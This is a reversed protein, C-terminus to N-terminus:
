DLRFGVCRQCRRHFSVFASGLCIKTPTFAGLAVMLWAPATSWHIAALAGAKRPSAGADGARAPLGGSAQREAQAFITTLM